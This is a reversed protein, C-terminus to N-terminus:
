NIKAWWMFENHRKLASDVYEKRIFATMNICFIMRINRIDFAKDFIVYGKGTAKFKNVKKIIRFIDTIPFNTSYVVEYGETPKRRERGNGYPSRTMHEHKIM